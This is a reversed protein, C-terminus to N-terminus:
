YEKEFTLGVSGSGDAGGDIQAKLNKTLDVDLTVRSTGDTETQVGVNVNDTIRKGIGITTGGTANQQIDLDDIGVLRRVRAFVGGDRGFAGSFQAIADVLQVAQFASLSGISQGFLIRSIIEEEPLSPSSSLSIDPDNAPGSVLVTATIEATSTTAEFDLVPDLDGEFTLTGYTFDFRRGLVEIRGRRMQFAGVPQPNATTGAIRLSGGLEADLGFGRVFIANNANVTIDLNFGGSGTQRPPPAGPRQLTQMPPVFGPETHIHEVTIAPGGGFSDPLLIQTRGLDIRGGIRGGGMVPGTLTLDANFNANVMVGDLYRGNRIRITLNAPFGGAPDVAVTGAVALDGGQTLRGTLSDIRATAGDFRVRGNINSVGIGDSADAARAEVLDFTGNIAPRSTSGTVALDIRTTGSVALDASSDATLLALPATGQVRVNLGAGAFPVTGTVALSVGGGALSADLTTSTASAAGSAALTMSPLGAKAAAAVNFGAWDIRWAVRPAAPTGTVTASGSITGAAGLGPSFRELFAAAVGNTAIRLDIDAGVTGDVTVTGGGVALNVGSISTVGGDIRVTASSAINVPFGYATGALRTLRIVEAGAVDALSGSGSLDLDPGRASAEFQTAGDVLSATISATDLRITGITLGTAEASGEIVPIAFANDIRVDADVRAAAISPMAIDRGNLSASISQRDGDPTFVIRGDAAGTAEVLMVAALSRLNPAAVDLSGSLLGAPTREIAGTIRNEGVELNVEPFSLGGTDALEARATGALPHGAFNGALTLAGNWGGGETPAGEARVSAGTVPQDLIRGEAVLVTADVAPRDLSGSIKANFEAAGDSELALLSLDAIRGDVTGDITDGQLTLNGIATLGTGGVSLDSIAVRGGPGTTVEASLTTEGSLLRALVPQGLDLGSSRGDLSLEVGDGAFPVTGTATLALGGGTAEAEVSTATATGEGRATVALPPLGISRTAAIAFDTWTATWAIVPADPTGTVAATGTITGGAALGPVFEDVFSGAVGDIAVRLDLNPSVVGEVTVQGGGAALNVGGLRVEGDAVTVATPGALDVPFGFATGALSDIGVTTAGGEGSLSGTGTLTLDPGAASATFRTADGVVEASIAATDIALTGVSVSGLDARGSISPTGFLDGIQAEGEVHGATVTDLAIDRGSFTVALGQRGNDPTLTARATAAGTADLLGMAALTQVNPAEVDLTGTFLGDATQTVAGTIGNEAITLDIAPLSLGGGAAVEARATGALPQGALTGGLTLTGQWGDDLPAGEVRVSADAVPQDLLTGEAVTVTADVTPGSLVGSIKAELDAAGTTGEALVGLDAIRGTLSADVTDGALSAGGSLTAEAGEVTLDAVAITGDASDSVRASIRPEGGLLRTVIAVGTDLGAGQGEVALDLGDPGAFVGDASATLGGSVPQGFITALPAIDAFAAEARGTVSGAMAITGAYTVKGGAVDLAATTEASMADLDFTGQASAVLPTAAGGPVTRGAIEVSDAEARFAFPLTRDALPDDGEAEVALSFGVAPTAVGNVSLEAARGILDLRTVGGTPAIRGSLDVSDFALSEGSGLPLVFGGGDPRAAEMKLTLDTAAGGFTGSAEARLSGTAVRGDRITVRPLRQGPAQQWDADVAVRIEGSLFDAFAPPVLEALDGEGTVTLRQGAEGAPTLTFQGAFRANGDSTLSVSGDFAGDDIGTKATLRYGPGSDSGMLGLLIGDPAEELTADVMLRADGSAREVRATLTGAGGDIRNADVSADISGNRGAAFAGTVALAAPNGILGEGLELRAVSFQRAMLSLLAGDSSGESAPLVPERSVAVRDASLADFVIKRRLLGGVALDVALGDIEAFPGEADGVVVRDAGFSFPPWGSLRDISVTLGSGAVAREVLSVVVARGPPTALFVLVLGVVVVLAAALTLVIRVARIM